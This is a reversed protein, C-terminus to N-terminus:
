INPVVIGFVYLVISGSSGTAQTVALSDGAKVPVAAANVTTNIGIGGVTLAGPAGGATLLTAAGTKILVTNAGVVTTRVVQMARTIIIPPWDAAYSSILTTDGAAVTLVRVHLLQEGPVSTMPVYTIQSTSSSYINSAM